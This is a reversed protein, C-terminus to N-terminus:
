TLCYGIATNTKGFIGYSIFFCFCFVIGIKHSLIYNLPCKIDFTDFLKWATVNTQDLHPHKFYAQIYDVKTLIKSRSNAFCTFQEYADNM